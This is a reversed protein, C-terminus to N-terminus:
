RKASTAAMDYESDLRKASKLLNRMNPLLKDLIAMEKNQDHLHINSSDITNNCEELKKIADEMIEIPSLHTIAENKNKKM